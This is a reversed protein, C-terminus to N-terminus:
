QLKHLLSFHLEFRRYRFIKRLEGLDVDEFSEVSVALRSQPRCSCGHREVVQERVGRSEAVVEDVAIHEAVSRVGVTLRRWSSNRWEHELGARTPLVAGA